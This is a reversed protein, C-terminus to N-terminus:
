KNLVEDRTSGVLDLVRQILANSVDLEELTSKLHTAVADFHQDTLGMNKVLGQHAIRLDRGKYEEPGGFAWAMFSVMKNGQSDMDLHEFFPALLKDQMVKSYFIDVAALIADFGGIEEFITKENM